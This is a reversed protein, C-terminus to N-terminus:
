YLIWLSESDVPEVLTWHLAGSLLRILSGFIVLYFKNLFKINFLLGMFSEGEEEKYGTQKGELSGLVSLGATGWPM